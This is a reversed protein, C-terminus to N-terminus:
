EEAYGLIKSEIVGTSVCTVGNENKLQPQNTSLNLSWQEEGAFNNYANYFKVGGKIVYKANVSISTSNDNEAVYINISGTLNTSRVANFLHGQNNTLTYKASDSPNYIYVNEGRANSFERRSTGCDVYRSPPSASFSVNIINSEKEINNIVFFDASLNKVLRKWVDDFPENVESVNNIKTITPATYDIKSTACASIGLCGLVIFVSKMM